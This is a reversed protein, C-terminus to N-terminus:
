AGREELGCERIRRATARQRRDNAAVVGVQITRGRERCLQARLPGSGAQRERARRGDVDALEPGLEAIAVCTRIAIGIAGDGTECAAEFQEAALEFPIERALM